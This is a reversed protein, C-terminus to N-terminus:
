SAKCSGGHGAEAECRTDVQESPGRQPAVMTKCLNELAQPEWQNCPASSQIDHSLKDVMGAISGIKGHLNDMYKELDAAPQLSSLLNPAIALSLTEDNSVVKNAFTHPEM